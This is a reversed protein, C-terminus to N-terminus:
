QGRRNVVVTLPNRGFGDDIPSWASCL